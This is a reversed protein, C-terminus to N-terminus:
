QPALTKREKLIALLKSVTNWNRITLYKYIPKGVIKSLRSKTRLASLRQYYLANPGSWAKDVDPHTELQAMAEEVPKGLLFAVDSHYTEPHTGFGKPASEVITQLQKQTLVLVKIVESHLSFSKPLAAEVTQAVAEPPLPTDIIVNGSNIYTQVRQFGLQELCKKLGAMPITNKGGVNIGRLLILYTHTM